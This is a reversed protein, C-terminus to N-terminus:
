RRVFLRLFFLKIKGHPFHRLKQEPWAKREVMARYHTFTEFSKKGHYQGTGSAGVGGFALGKGNAQLMTDNVCGGGFSCDNMVRQTVAKDETFIYLALPKEHAHIFDMCWNLDTWTILPLIPGFIEREMVPSEPTVDTLVTPPIFRREPDTEGGIAPTQGELLAALRQFHEDNIITAMHSMDGKRFFKKLAKEYEQVFADRVDEHILVYDPAVCTQGANMCKGFAVRRAAIKLNATPDIIVPNKGGLELTTPILNEAAAAMVKKGAERSGTFFIYDWKQGLLDGCEERSGTIVAIYEDPFLSALLEALVAATHPAKASCKVVACNGAAIAGILPMLTLNVPYNWPSIILTVGYPEPNMYSRACFGQPGGARRNKMFGKLHRRFYRIESYVVSLETIYAEYEQKNLDAQLAEYLRKEFLVLAQRLDDLATRREEYGRTAGTAFYARQREILEAYNM